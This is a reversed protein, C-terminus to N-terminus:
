LLGWLSFCVFPGEREKPEACQCAKSKTCLFSVNKTTKNLWLLCEATEWVLEKGTM